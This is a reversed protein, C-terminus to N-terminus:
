SHGRGCPLMELIKGLLMENRNLRSLLEREFVSTYAYIPGDVSIAAFNDKELMLRLKDYPWNIVCFYDRTLPLQKSVLHECYDRIKRRIQEEADRWIDAVRDDNAGAERLAEQCHKLALPCCLYGLELSIVFCEDDSTEEIQQDCVESLTAWCHLIQRLAEYQSEISSDGDTAFDIVPPEQPIAVGARQLVDLLLSLYNSPESSVSEHLASGSPVDAAVALEDVIFRVWRKYNSETKLLEVVDPGDAPGIWDINTLAWLQDQWEIPVHETRKWQSVKAQSVKLKAAIETQNLGTHERVFQLLKNM